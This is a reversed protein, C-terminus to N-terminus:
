LSEKFFYKKSNSCSELVKFVNGKSMSTETLFNLSLIIEIIPFDKDILKTNKIQENTIREM